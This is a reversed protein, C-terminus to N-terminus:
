TAGAAADEAAATAQAANFVLLQLTEEKLALLRLLKDSAQKMDGTDTPAKLADAIYLQLDSALAFFAKAHPEYGDSAYLDMWQWLRLVRWCALTSHPPAACASLFRSARKGGLADHPVITEHWFRACALAGAHDEDLAEQSGNSGNDGDGDKDATPTVRHTQGAVYVRANRRLALKHKHKPQFPHLLDVLKAKAATVRAELEEREGSEMREILEMARPVDLTRTNLVVNWFEPKKARANYDVVWAYAAIDRFEVSQLYLLRARRTAAELVRSLKARFDHAADALVRTPPEYARRRSDDDSGVPVIQEWSVVVSRNALAVFVVVFGTTLLNQTSLVTGVSDKWPGKRIQVRADYICWSRAARLVQARTATSWRRKKRQFPSASAGDSSDGLVRRHLFLTARVKELRLQRAAIEQATDSKLAPAVGFVSKVRYVVSQRVREDKARQARAVQTQRVLRMYARGRRRAVFARVLAQIRTASANRLREHREHELREAARERLRTERAHQVAASRAREAQQKLVSFYSLRHSQHHQRQGRAHVRGLCRKCYVDDCTECRWQAVRSVCEVCMVVLPQFSHAELPTALLSAPPSPTTGKAAPVTHVHGFCADCFPVRGNGCHRCERTATETRCHNCAQIRRQEHRQLAQRKAHDRAFCVTCMADECEVCYVEAPVKQSGGGGRSSDEHRECFARFEDGPFPLPVVKACAVGKLFVPRRPVTAGTRVHQFRVARGRHDVFEVFQSALASKMQARVCYRRYCAGIANASRVRRERELRERHLTLFRGHSRRAAVRGALRRLKDVAWLIRESCHRELTARYKGSQLTSPLVFQNMFRLFRANDAAVLEPSPAVQAQHPGNTVSSTSTSTGTGAFKLQLVALVASNFRAFSLTRAKPEKMKAFVVDLTQPPFSTKNVFALPLAKFLRTFRSNDMESAAGGSCADRFVAQWVGDYGRRKGCRFLTRDVRKHEGAGDADGTAVHQYAFSQLLLEDKVRRRTADLLVRGMVHEEALMQQRRVARCLWRRGLLVRMRRQIVAAARSRQRRCEASRRQRWRRQVKAIAKLACRMQVLARRTRVGRWASQIRRASRHVVREWARARGQVGRVRKQIRTAALRRTRAAARRQLERERAKEHRLRRRTRVGRWRAQLRTAAQVDHRSAASGTAPEKSTGVLQHWTKKLQQNVEAVRHRNKRRRDEADRAWERRQQARAEALAARTRRARYCRWARQLTQVAGHVAFRHRICLARTKRGRFQAQVRVIKVKDREFQARRRRLALVRRRQWRRVARQIVVAAGHARISRQREVVRQQQRARTTEVRRIALLLRRRRRASRGRAHRQICVAAAHRQQKRLHRRLTVWLAQHQRWFRQIMETAALQLARRQRQRHRAHERLARTIVRAATTEKIALMRVLADQRRRLEARVRQRASRERTARMQRWRCQIHLAATAQERLALDAAVRKWRVLAQVVLRFRLRAGARFLASAARQQAPSAFTGKGFAYIVELPLLHRIESLALAVQTQAAREDASAAAREHVLQRHEQQQRKSPFCHPPPADSSTPPHTADGSVNVDVDEMAMRITEDRACNRHAARLEKPKERLVPPPRSTRQATVRRPSLGRYGVVPEAIGRPRLRQQRKLIQYLLRSRQESAAFGEMAEIAEMDAQSPPPLRALGQRTRPSVTRLLPLTPASQQARASLSRRQDPTTDELDGPMAPQNLYDRLALPARRQDLFVSPLIEQASPFFAAAPVVELPQRDSQWQLSIFGFLERPSPNKYEVTIAHLRGGVLDIECGVERVDSAGTSSPPVNLADLVPVTDIYVAAFPLVSLYLKYPESFKPKLFGKWRVRPYGRMADTVRWDFLIQADVRQAAAVSAGFRLTDFYSATLGNDRSALHTQIEYAGPVKVTYAVIYESTGVDSITSPYVIAPGRLLAVLNDGGAEVSNSYFDKLSVSYTRITNVPIQPGLGSGGTVASTLATALNPLVRLTATKSAFTGGDDVSLLVQYLGTATATYAVKFTGDGSRTVRAAVFTASTGLQLQVSPLRPPAKAGLAVQPAGDIPNANLDRLQLVFTAEIGATAQAFGAGTITSTSASPVNPEVDLTFPSKLISFPQMFLALADGTLSQYGTTGPPVAAVVMAFRGGLIPSFSITYVSDAMDVVTIPSPVSAAPLQPFVVRITDGGTLRQNGFQDRSIVRFVLTKGATARVIMPSAGSVVADDAFEATFSPANPAAPAINLSPINNVIRWSTYLRTPPVLELNQSPSQWRLQIKGNPFSKPKSYNLEIPVFQNATLAVQVFQSRSRRGAEPWLDSLLAKDNVRLSVGGLVDADFTYVESFAPLLFGRWCVSFTEMADTELPPLVNFDFDIAADQRELISPAVLDPNPFYTGNLGGVLLIAPEFPFVGRKLPRLTLLYSGGDEDVLPSEQFGSVDGLQFAYGGSELLNGFADRSTLRALIQAGATYPVVPAAATSVPSILDLSSTTPSARAPYTYMSFPSARVDVGNVQVRISYRGKATLLYSVLFTDDGLFSVVLGTSAAAVTTTAPAPGTFVVSIAELGANRKENDFADRIAVTFSARVGAISSVLGDGQALSFSGLAPGAIVDLAFPSGSIPLTVGSHSFIVFLKCKGVYKATYTCAYVGTLLDVCAGSSKEKTPHEITVEIGAGRQHVFNGEFDRTTVQFSAQVNTTATAVGLGSATSTSGFPVNPVVSVMYPSDNVDAGNLVIRVSYIGAVRPTYTLTYTGDGNDATTGVEIASPQTTHFARIELKPAGGVFIRNSNADRAEITVTTAVGAVRNALVGSGSAVSRTPHMAGPTVTMQFPSGDLQGTNAWVDLDYIGSILPTWSVRFAERLPDWEVLADNIRSGIGGLSQDTVLTLRAEFVDKLDQVRRPNGYADVPVVEVSHRVGAVSSLVGRITSASSSASAAPLVPVNEFPSGRIHQESFLNSAPIVEKAVSASSWYLHVRADGTFDRYDLVLAYFLSSDLAVTASAQGTLAGDWRDILLVDDIWLRTHDDAAVYFTVDETSKPKLRGSWRASVYDSAGPFISGTGWTFNVHRDIRSVVPTGAMWADSYYHGRLGGPHLLYVAVTFSGAERRRWTCTCTGDGNDAVRGLQKTRLAEWSVTGENETEVEDDDDDSEIGAAYSEVLYVSSEGRTTRLVGSGLVSQVQFTIDDGARGGARLTTDADVVFSLGADTFAADDDLITVLAHRQSGLSSRKSGRAMAGDLEPQRLSVRFTEDQEVVHDDHITLQFALEVVGEDFVLWQSSTYFATPSVDDPSATVYQVDYALAASGMGGGSRRVTLTISAAAEAIEYTPSGFSFVGAHGCVRHSVSMPACSLTADSNLGQTCSRSVDSLLPTPALGAVPTPTLDFAEAEDFVRPDQSGYPFAFAFERTLEDFPLAADVARAGSRRVSNLLPDACALCASSDCTLCRPDFKKCSACTQTAPEVYYGEVCSLCTTSTCSTCLADFQCFAQSCDVGKRSALCTCTGTAYDCAGGQSCDKPCSKKPYCLGGRKFYSPKCATCDLGTYGQNCVCLGSRRDCYGFERGRCYFEEDNVPGVMGPCSQMPPRQFYVRPVDPSFPAGENVREPEPNTPDGFTGVSGHAYPEFVAAPASAPDTGAGLVRFGSARDTSLLLQLLPAVM